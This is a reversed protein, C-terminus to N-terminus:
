MIVADQEPTLLPDSFQYAWNVIILAPVPEPAALTLLPLCLLALFLHCTKM